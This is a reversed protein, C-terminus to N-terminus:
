SPENKSVFIHWVTNEMTVKGVRLIKVTSSVLAKGTAESTTPVLILSQVDPFAEDAKLKGEKNRKIGKQIGRLTITVNGGQPINIIGIKETTYDFWTFTPKFLAALEQGDAELPNRM